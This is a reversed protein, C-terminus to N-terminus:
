FHMGRLMETTIREASECGPLPPKPCQGRPHGREGCTWCRRKLEELREQTGTGDREMQQLLAILRGGTLGRGAPIPRIPTSNRATPATFNTGHDTGVHRTTAWSSVAPMPSFMPEIKVPEEWAINVSGGSVRLHTQSVFFEGANSGLAATVPSVFGTGATPEALPFEVSDFQEAGHYQMHGLERVTWPNNPVMWAVNLAVADILWAMVNKQQLAKANKPTPERVYKRVAEV